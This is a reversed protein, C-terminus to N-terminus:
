VKVSVDVDVGKSDGEGGESIKEEPEEPEESELFLKAVKKKMGLEKPDYGMALGLIQPAFVVPIKFDIDIKPDMQYESYMVKCFPCHVSIVDARADHVHILKERVMKVSTDENVALIAGGCCQEMNEYKTPVVGTIALIEEVTHPAIPDDFNEFIEPPKLYHCGYHIAVRIPNLKRTILKQIESLGINEYIFRLFHKVELTGKFEKGISNKLIENIHEREKDNEKLLGNVKTLTATCSSCVSIIQNLGMEEATVLNQAAFALFTSHDNPAAPYGCCVFDNSDVLEIGLKEAVRRVAADYEYTRLSVNCGLFYAAKM